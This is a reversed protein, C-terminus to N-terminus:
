SKRMQILSSPKPRPVCRTTYYYPSVYRLGFGLIDGFAYTRHFNYGNEAYFRLLHPSFKQTSHSLSSFFIFGESYLESYESPNISTGNRSVRCYM